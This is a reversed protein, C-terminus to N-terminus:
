NKGWRANAARRAIEARKAASLNKARAKGGKEGGRRGLSVAAPDKNRESAAAHDATEGVSIDVIMKGLQNPDRPRKKHTREAM